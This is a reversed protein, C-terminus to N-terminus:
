AKRTERELLASAEDDSLHEIEALLAAYEEPDIDGLQAAEIRAALDSLTLTGSYVDDIALEVGFSERIRLLLLVALM